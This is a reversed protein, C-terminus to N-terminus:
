GPLFNGREALVCVWLCLLRFDDPCHELKFAPRLFFQSIPLVWDDMVQYFVSGQLGATHSSVFKAGATHSKQPWGLRLDRSQCFEWSVPLSLTWGEVALYGAWVAQAGWKSYGHRHVLPGISEHIAFSPSALNEPPLNEVGVNPFPGM